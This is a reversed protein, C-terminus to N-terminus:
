SHRKINKVKHQLAAVIKALDEVASVLNQVGPDKSSAANRAANRV